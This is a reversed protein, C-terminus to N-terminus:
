GEREINKKPQRTTEEDEINAAVAAEAAEARNHETKSLREDSDQKASAEEQKKCRGYKRKRDQKRRVREIKKDSRGSSM